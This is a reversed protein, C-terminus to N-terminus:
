RMRWIRHFYPVPQGVVVEFPLWVYRSDRLNKPNWHHALFIFEGDSHAQIPQGDIIEAETGSGHNWTMFLWLTGTDRDLVPCPNGCTHSQDDWLTQIAQWTRGNDFSRRLALDIDGAHGRGGKRGEASALLTGCGSTLLAPIRCTHYGGQGSV